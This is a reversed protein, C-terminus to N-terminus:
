VVSSPFSTGRGMGFGKENERHATSGGKCSLM